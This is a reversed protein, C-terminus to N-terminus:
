GSQSRPSPLGTRADISRNGVGYGLATVEGPLVQVLERSAYPTERDGAIGYAFLAAGVAVVLLALRRVPNKTRRRDHAPSDSAPGDRDGSM